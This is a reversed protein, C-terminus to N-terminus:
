FISDVLPRLSRVIQDATRQYYADNRGYPDDLDDSPL